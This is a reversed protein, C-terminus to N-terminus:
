GHEPPHHAEWCSSPQPLLEVVAVRCVGTLIHVIWLCVSMCLGVSAGLVCVCMRLQVATRQDHARRARRALACRVDVMARAIALQVTVNGGGCAGGGKVRVQGIANDTGRCASCMCLCQGNTARRVPWCM